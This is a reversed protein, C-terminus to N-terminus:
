RTLDTIKADMKSLEIDKQKM